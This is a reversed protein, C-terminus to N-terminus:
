EGDFMEDQCRQCMGSIVFEKISLQDRLSDVHNGCLICDKVDSPRYHNGERIFILAEREPRENKCQIVKEGMHSM